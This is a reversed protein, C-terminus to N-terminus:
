GVYDRWLGPYFRLTKLATEADLDAWYPFIGMLPAPTAGERLTFGNRTRDVRDVFWDAVGSLM